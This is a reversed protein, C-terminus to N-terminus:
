KSQIQIKPQHCRKLTTYKFKHSRRRTSVRHLWSPRRHSMWKRELRKSRHRRKCYWISSQNRSKQSKLKHLSQRRTKRWFWLSRPWNWFNMWNNAKLTKFMKPSSKHNLNFTWIELMRSKTIFRVRSWPQGMLHSPISHSYHSNLNSIRPYHCITMKITTPRFIWFILHFSAFFSIKPDWRFGLSRCSAVWRIRKIQRRLFIRKSRNQKHHHWLTASIPSSSPQHVRFQSSCRKRHFKMKSTCRVVTEFSQHTLAAKLCQRHMQVPSASTQSRKLMTWAATAFWKRYNTKKMLNSPCVNSLRRGFVMM